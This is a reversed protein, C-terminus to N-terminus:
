ICCKTTLSSRLMIPELLHSIQMHRLLDDRETETIDGNDCRTKVAAVQAQFQEFKNSM